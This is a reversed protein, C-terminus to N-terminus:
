TLSARIPIRRRSRSSRRNPEQETDAVHRPAQFSHCVIFDSNMLRVIELLNFCTDCIRTMSYKALDSVTM